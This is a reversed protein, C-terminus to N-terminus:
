SMKVHNELSPMYSALVVFSNLYLYETRRGENYTGRQFGTRKSVDIMPAHSLDRWLLCTKQELDM